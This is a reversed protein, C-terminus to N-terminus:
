MCTVLYPAFLYGIANVVHRLKVEYRPISSQFNVIFIISFCDLRHIEGENGM